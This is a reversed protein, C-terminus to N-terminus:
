SCQVYAHGTTNRIAVHLEELSAISIMKHHPVLYDKYTDCSQLALLLQQEKFM